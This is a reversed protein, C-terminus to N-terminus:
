AFLGALVAYVLAGVLGGVVAAVLGSSNLSFKHTERDVHELFRYMGTLDLDPDQSLSELLFPNLAKLLDTESGADSVEAKASRLAAAGTRAKMARIEIGSVLSSLEKATRWKKILRYGSVAHYAELAKTLKDFRLELDIDLLQKWKRQISASYFSTITREM